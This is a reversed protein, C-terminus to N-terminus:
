EVHSAPTWHCMYVCCWWSSCMYTLHPSSIHMHSSTDCFTLHVRYSLVCGSGAVQRSAIVCLMPITCATWLANWLLACTTHVHLGCLVAHMYATVKLEYKSV